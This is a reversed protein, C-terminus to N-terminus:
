FDEKRCKLEYKKQDALLYDDYIIFEISENGYGLPEWLFYYTERKGMAYVSTRNLLDNTRQYGLTVKYHTEIDKLLQKRMSESASDIRFCIYYIINNRDIKVDLWGNIGGLSNSQGHIGWDSKKGLEYGKLSQAQVGIGIFLIALILIRKM